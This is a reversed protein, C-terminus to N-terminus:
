ISTLKLNADAELKKWNDDLEAIRGAKECALYRYFAAVGIMAANDGCYQFPPTLFQTGRLSDEIMKGLDNRLKKNAAM